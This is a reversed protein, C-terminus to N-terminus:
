LAQGRAKEAPYSQHLDSLWPPAFVIM